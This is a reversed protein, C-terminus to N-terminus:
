ASGSGCILSARKLSPCHPRAALTHGGGAGGAMALQCCGRLLQPAASAAAPAPSVAKCRPMKTAVSDCRMKAVLYTAVVYAVYACLWVCCGFLEWRM